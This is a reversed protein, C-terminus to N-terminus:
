AAGELPQIHVAPDKIRLRNILGPSALMETGDGVVVAVYVPTESRSVKKARLQHLSPSKSVWKVEVGFSPKGTKDTVVLDMPGHEVAQTRYGNRALSQTLLSAAFREHNSLKSM